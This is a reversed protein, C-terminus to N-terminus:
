SARNVGVVAPLRTFAFAAGVALVGCVVWLVAFGTDPNSFAAVTRTGLLPALIHATSYAGAYMGLYRGRAQDGGRKTAYTVMFPM